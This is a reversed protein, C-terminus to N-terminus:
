WQAIVVAMKKKFPPLNRGQCMSLLGPGALKHTKMPGLVSALTGLVLRPTEDAEGRRDQRPTSGGYGEAERTHQVPHGTGHKIHGSPGQLSM